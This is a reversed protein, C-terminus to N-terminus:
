ADNRETIELYRRRAAIRFEASDDLIMLTEIADLVRGRRVHEEIRPREILPAQTHSKTVAIM